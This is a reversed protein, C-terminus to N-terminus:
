GPLGLARRLEVTALTFDHLFHEDQLLATAIATAARRGAEVDSPFHVGLVVRRAGLQRGRAFLQVRKEPIMNALLIATLYAITSTASPYSSGAPREGVPKVDGSADFPRKRDWIGKGASLANDADHRVKDFLAAVNPMRELTFNPGLVDGFGFTGATADALAREVQVKTRSSQIALV